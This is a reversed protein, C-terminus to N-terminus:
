IKSLKEIIDRARPFQQKLKETDGLEFDDFEFGPATTCGVLSYYNKDSLEAAFWQGKRVIVM